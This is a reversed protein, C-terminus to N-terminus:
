TSRRELFCVLRLCLDLWIIIIIIGRIIEIILRWGYLQPQDHGTRRGTQAIMELLLIDWFSVYVPHKM